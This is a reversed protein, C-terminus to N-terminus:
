SAEIAPRLARSRLTARKVGDERRRRREDETLMITSLAVEIERQYRGFEFESEWVADYNSQGQGLSTQNRLGLFSSLAMRYLPAAYLHLTRKGPAVILRNEDVPNGHLYDHRIHCLMLTDVLEGLAAIDIELISGKKPMGARIAPETHSKHWITYQTVDARAAFLADKFKEAALFKDVQDGLAGSGPLRDVCCRKFTLGSGCLCQSNRAAFNSFGFGVSRRSGKGVVKLGM